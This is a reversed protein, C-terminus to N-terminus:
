FLIPRERRQIKDAESTLWLWHDSLVSDNSMLKAINSGQLIDFCKFIATGQNVEDLMVVYLMKSKTLLVTTILQLM